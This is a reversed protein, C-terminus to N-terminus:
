LKVTKARRLYNESITIGFGPGTPVRIVGDHCKLDSTDCEFPIKSTGKFEQHEGSNPVYSAFHLVYLYGLGAGSM